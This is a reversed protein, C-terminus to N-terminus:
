KRGVEEVMRAAALPKTLVADVMAAEARGDLDAPWGSLVVIRLEPSAARFERILALGDEARPLRLDLLVAQPQQAAFQERAHGASLAIAVAYGHREFILRRLELADGDDDVFLLRTM